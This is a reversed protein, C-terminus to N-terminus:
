AESGLFFLDGQRRLKGMGVLAGTLQNFQDLTCGQSMLAAYMVGAPAGLPGAVKVSEIVADVIMLVVHRTQQETLAM